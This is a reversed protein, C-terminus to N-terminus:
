LWRKLLADVETPMAGPGDSFQTFCSNEMLLKMTILFYERKHINM